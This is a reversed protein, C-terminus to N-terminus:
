RASLQCASRVRPDGRVPQLERGGYARVRGRALPADYYRSVDRFLALPLWRCAPIGTTIGESLIASSRGFRPIELAGGIGIIRPETM